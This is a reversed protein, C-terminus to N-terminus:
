DPVRIPRPAAPVPPLAMSARQFWAVGLLILAGGVVLQWHLREGLFVVGLVVAVMPLVYSVMQTRTPGVSTLLFYFLSISVGNVVVGLFLLGTWTLPSRPLELSQGTVLAAVSLAVGGVCVAVFAQLMAPMTQGLRRAAVSTTAFCMAAGLQALQGPLEGTPGGQWNRSILLVVGAFGLVMSLVRQPTIREDALVPAAVLMTLLPTTAILIAAVSSDTTQQGWVILFHPLALNGLGLVLPTLWARGLRPWRPRLLTVAVALTAAGLGMRFLLIGLPSMEVLALEYWMYAQGWTLSVFGFAFWQRSTM